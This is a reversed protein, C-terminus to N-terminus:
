RVKVRPTVSIGPGLPYAAPNPSDFLIRVPVRQVVKVYNGTANQPPLLGFAQGAGRQFSQVHGRFAVDPFADVRIDVAQGVRMDRLQTEKFNATVWLQQPVIALIQQGPAVYSGINVSRNAVHGAIPSTLRGNAVDIAQQRAGARAADVQARASGVQTEDASLQARAQAIQDEAATLRGRLQNVSARAQDLQQPAVAAADLRLLREYRGLDQEAKALQARPDRTDSQARRVAERDVGLRAQAQRVGAVAQAEQARLQEQRARPGATDVIAVLTGPGVFANDDVFVQKLVGSVQPALRVIHGDVFADDTSEYQRANLWWLLGAIAAALIVVIAVLILLRRRRPNPPKKGDEPKGDEPKSDKPKDGNEPKAADRKGDDKRADKDSDDAM